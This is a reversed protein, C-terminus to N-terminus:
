RPGEDSPVREPPLLGARWLALLLVPVLVMAIFLGVRGTMGMPHALVIQQHILTLLVAVMGLWTVRVPTVRRRRWRYTRNVEQSM